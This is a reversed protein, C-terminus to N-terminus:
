PSFAEKQLVVDAHLPLGRGPVLPVLAPASGEVEVEVAVGRDIACVWVEPPRASDGPCWVSSRVGVLAASLAQDAVRAAAQATGGSASGARAGALSAARAGYAEAAWVAAQVTAFVILLAIPWAVAFEVLAAALQRGERPRM